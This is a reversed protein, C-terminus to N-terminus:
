NPSRGAWPKQVTILEMPRIMRVLGDEGEFSRLKEFLTHLTAGKKDDPILQFQYMGLSFIQLADEPELTIVFDSEEFTIRSDVSFAERLVEEILNRSRFVDNGVGITRPSLAIANLTDMVARFSKSGDTEELRWYAPTFIRLTGGPKLVRNVERAALDPSPILALVMHSFAMDFTDDQNPLSQLNGQVFEYGKEEFDSKACAIARESLDIGQYRIESTRSKLYKVLNGSGCGLDLVSPTGSFNLDRLVTEYGNQGRNNELREFYTIRHRRIRPRAAEFFNKTQELEQM